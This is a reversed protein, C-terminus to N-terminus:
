PRPRPQHFVVEPHLPSPGDLLRPPATRGRLHRDFFAAAYARTIAASREGSLPVDPDELGLQEGIVPTDTFTFHGSDRVTLWRKWGDLRAWGTDWSGDEGGPRHGADTGLMLFPRGGLGRAPVPAFFTGDMNIGADVRRDAAMTSAAANGGISHGAMGVRLPDITGAYRWSPRPGTLRDLLFSVDAARGTSVAALVRNRAAMDPQADVRECAACTLLRGDPLQTGTSEYPHDLSAVVYGRSALDEALGTLTARPTGFGPSLVVLPFRGRVPRADTRAHARTAAVAAPPVVGELGRQALMLRAEETTLYPAPAGGSGPRAPYHLSVLLQRAGASPVWPDPRGRDTLFLTDRGVAHPGTPRPLAPAASAPTSASASAPHTPAAPSPAALGAPSPYAAPEAPSTTLGALFTAPTPLSAAPAAPSTASAALFTAPAAPSAAPGTLPASM